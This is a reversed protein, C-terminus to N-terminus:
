PEFRIPPKSIRGSRTEVLAPEEDYFTKLRDISVTKIKNDVLLLFFKPHRELVEYPGSYRLELPQKQKTHDKRILVRKCSYLQNNVFSSQPQSRTQRPRISNFHEKLQVVMQNSDLCNPTQIQCDQPLKLTQGYVLEDPSCQTEERWTSRLSLLVLPLNEFWNTPNQQMRLADKLRRHVNEVIGNSQPHYSTTKIHKTGLFSMLEQWLQSTFQSGRDTTITSPVGYYQIWGHLLAQATADATIEKMPTATFWRTFRDIATFLYRYGNSPSLPGVIDIHVHSFRDSPLDFKQIPAKNHRIIKGKQCISCSRVWQIIDKNMCHWVFRKQILHKTAKIGPHSINHITDFILRQFTRPVIPRVYSTSTDCLITTMGDNIPFEQLQLATETSGDMLSRVYDDQKQVAALREYDINQHSSFSIHNVEIRSLADPAVNDEGKVHTVDTTFESIFSLQRARRLIVQDSRSYFASVLPKHDTYLTFKIGEILFHFHRVAKYAAFLERDFASYRQQTKDLKRSFFAIPKWENYQKQQLVGGIATDSADVMISTPLNPDPYNLMTTDTLLERSKDFATNTETSWVLIDRKSKKPSKIMDYLPSLHRTLNKVFRHYYNILGLYARLQKVTKPKPYNKIAEVRDPLPLIGEASVIHRM